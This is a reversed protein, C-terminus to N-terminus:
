KKISISSIKKLIKRKAWSDIKHYSYSIFYLILFAISLKISILSAATSLIIVFFLLGINRVYNMYNIISELEKKKLFSIKIKESIEANLSSLKEQSFETDKKHHSNINENEKINLGKAIRMQLEAESFTDHFRIRSVIVLLFFFSCIITEIALISIISHQNISAEPLVNFTILSNFFASFQDLLIKINEIVSNDLSLITLFGSFSLAGLLTSELTYTDVKNSFQKLSIELIILKEENNKDSIANYNNLHKDGKINADKKKLNSYSGYFIMLIYFGYIFFTLVTLIIQLWLPLSSYQNWSIFAGLIIISFCITFIKANGEVEIKDNEAFRNENKFLEAWQKERNTQSTYIIVILPILLIQSGWFLWFNCIEIEYLWLFIFRLILDTAIFRYSFPVYHKNPLNRIKTELEM